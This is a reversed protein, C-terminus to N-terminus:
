DVRCPWLTKACSGEVQGRAPTQPTWHETDARPKRVVVAQLGSPLVMQEGVAGLMCCKTLM